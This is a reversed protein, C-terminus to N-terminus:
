IVRTNGGQMNRLGHDVAQGGGFFSIGCYRRGSNHRSSQRAVRGSWRLGTTGSTWRIVPHTRSM